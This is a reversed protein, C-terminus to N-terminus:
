SLVCPCRSCPLWVCCQCCVEVVTEGDDLALVMDNPPFMISMQAENQGRILVYVCLVDMLSTSSLNGIPSECFSARPFSEDACTLGLRPSAPDALDAHHPCHSYSM